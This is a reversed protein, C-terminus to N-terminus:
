TQAAFALVLRLRRIMKCTVVFPLPAWPQGEVAGFRLEAAVPDRTTM